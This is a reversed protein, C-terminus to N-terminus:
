KGEEKLYNEEFFLLYRAPNKDSNLAELNNRGIIFKIMQAGSPNRIIRDTNFANYYEMAEKLDRFGAVTFMVYKKDVLTGQTRFNRNTYNDINYSIIDFNGQNVNFQPNLVVLIFTQPTGKDDTYIEKAIQKDEEVKLEPLKQNLYASLENARKAEDSEPWQKMVIALEEKFAREDSIRAVCYSKLLQFKPALDNKPFQSLGQNCIDIAGAFEDKQYAAYASNYLNEAARLQESLKRYYDPDSLIKAFENNPFSTLLKQRNIEARAENSGKYVKYNNYLAEAEFDSGPFRSIVSEFSGTAKGADTFKEFYIKGSELLASAVRDNSIKMLSDTLPLERLYYEPKRNDRMAASTDAKAQDKEDGGANNLNQNTRSKNLRRWNDELKRNGWRRKFETRGFTLASQNYFYWKGEQQINDRFRQENEYFQGLNYRDANDKTTKGSAEDQKVKEIIASIFAGREGEGMRAVRQLSDEKEVINLQTVLLKLNGAKESISKFDPFKDNLFYMTSDYYKGSNIYDPKKFYYEAIALYSKGKQNPNSTSSTTSKRYNAIAEEINGEKMAMNALAFYIQDSYEKNKADRLMRGLEKRIEEANGSDPNYVDALNIRANFEIEYPPNMKIVERFLKTAMNGDGTKENVQALLYTLRYKNRKGKLYKLSNALPERAESYMKQKLYLDAITTYYQGLLENSFNKTLDLEGLIRKSETYNGTQNLCRALWVSAENRVAPDTTLSITFNFTSIALDLERKYLRAKGMLLYSDDVWENYEKRNMFEEEKESPLEGKKLEPKSTISKLSILKSVKQIAREMDASCMQTTAPDSFEFVQLQESYDERYGNNVKTVGAKYSEYGNFFINYKSTLGQYFRSSATNKEVSCGGAM